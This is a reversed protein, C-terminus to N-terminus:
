ESFLVTETNVSTKLERVSKNRLYLFKSQLNYQFLVVALSLLSGSKLEKMRMHDFGYLGDLPFPILEITNRLIYVTIGVFSMQVILEFLVTLQTKASYEDGFIKVFIGDIFIATYYGVFFYLITIFIIDIIKITRIIVEHQLQSKLM